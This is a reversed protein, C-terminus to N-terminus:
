VATPPQLPRPAQSLSRIIGVARDMDGSWVSLTKVTRETTVLSIPDFSKAHNTSVGADVGRATLQEALLDVSMPLDSAYVEVRCEGPQPRRPEASEKPWNNRLASPELRMTLPLEPAQIPFGCEPCRDQSARLDYGCSV